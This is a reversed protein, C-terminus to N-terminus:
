FSLAEDLNLFFPNLIQNQWGDNPHPEKLTNHVQGRKRQIYWDIESAADLFLLADANRQRGM